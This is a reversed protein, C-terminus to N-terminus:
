EERLVLNLAKQVNQISSFEARYIWINANVGWGVLKFDKRESVHRHVNEDDTQL